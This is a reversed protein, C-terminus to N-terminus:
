LAFPCLRNKKIIARNKPDFDSRYDFPVHMISDVDETHQAGFIHGFEHILAIVDLTPESRAGTYHYPQTVSSVLYHGLGKDCDGLLALGRGGAYFAVRQGTLGVTVDYNGGGAPYKQMLSKLLTSVLPTEEEFDWPEVAVPALKLDFEREYFDSAARVLGVATERWNPDKARLKSDALVRVGVTRAPPADRLVACGSVLLLSLIFCSTPRRTTM